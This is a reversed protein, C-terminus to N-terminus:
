SMGMFGMIAGSDACLVWLEPEDSTLYDRTAPLLSQIDEESLFTHTARVSRLWIEVLFDRDTPNARRIRMARADKADSFWTDEPEAYAAARHYKFPQNYHNPVSKNQKAALTADDFTSYSTCRVSRGCFTGRTSPRALPSSAPRRSWAVSWVSPRRWWSPHLLRM